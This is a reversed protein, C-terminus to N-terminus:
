NERTIFLDSTPNKLIVAEPDIEVLERDIQITFTFLQFIWNKVGPESDPVWDLYPFYIPM